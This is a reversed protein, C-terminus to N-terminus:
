RKFEGTREELPFCAMWNRIALMEVDGKIYCFTDTNSCKGARVKSRIYAVSFFQNGTSDETVEKIQEWTMSVAEGSRAAFSTAIVSYVKQFLHAEEKNSATNHYERLEAKSFCSAHKEM